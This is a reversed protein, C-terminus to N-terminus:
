IEHASIIATFTVNQADNNYIRVLVDTFRPIPLLYKYYIAQEQEPAAISAAVDCDLVVLNNFLVDFGLLNNADGLGTVDASLQILGNLSVNPSKFDLITVPSTGTAVNIAGSYAAFHQRKDIQSKGLSRLSLGTSAIIASTPIVDTEPM